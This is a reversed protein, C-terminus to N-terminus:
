ESVEEVGGEVRGGAFCSESTGDLATSVLLIEWFSSPFLIKRM